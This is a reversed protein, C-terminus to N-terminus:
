KGSRYIIEVMMIPHFSPAQRGVVAHLVDRKSHGRRSFVDIAVRVLDLPEDATTGRTARQRALASTRRQTLTRERDPLLRGTRYSAGLLYCLFGKGERYLFSRSDKM